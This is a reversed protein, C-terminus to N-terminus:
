HARPRPHRSGDLIRAGGGGCAGTGIHYQYTYTHATRTCHTHSMCTHRHSIYTYTYTSYTHLTHTIDPHIHLHQVHTIYTHYHYTHTHATRTCHIDSMCTDINIYMHTIHSKHTVHM